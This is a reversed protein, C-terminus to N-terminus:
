KLSVGKRAPCGDRNEVEEIVCESNETEKLSVSKLFVWPYNRYLYSKLTEFIWTAVHESTPNQTFFNNLDKHDLISLISKEIADKLISYDIVMGKNSEIWNETSSVEVTLVWSHGHNNACKGEYNLLHHAAEFTVRKKISIRRM